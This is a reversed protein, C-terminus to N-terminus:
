VDERKVRVSIKQDPVVLMALKHPQIEKPTDQCSEVSHFRLINVLGIKLVMYALRQALCHRPGIGFPLYAGFDDETDFREPKFKNAEPFYAEDRHLAYTPIYIPLGNPLGGLEPLLSYLADQTGNQTDPTCVRNIFSFAPYLRFTEASFLASLKLTEAACEVCHTSSTLFYFYMGKCVMTLYKLAALNEYTLAGHIEFHDSIEKRLKAQVRSQKANLSLSYWSTM